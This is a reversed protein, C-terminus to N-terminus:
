TTEKITDPPMSNEESEPEDLKTVFLRLIRRGDTEVVQFQYGSHEVTEEPEPQYGFLGYVYGGITDFVESELTVGLAEAVSYLSARGGVHWGEEAEYIEPEEEDYEDIIEGMVEEVIDEITVLGATGGFEDQVVAMQHRENRMEQLLELLPKDQAVFFASRIFERLPQEHNGSALRSLVDKAHVIGLIQDDTEEYVPLRSYGSEEVVRAADILKSEVPLAVMDIRPTMVSRALTNGFEFVSTIIQREEGEIDGQEEATELIDLIEDEHPNIVAFSPRQGFRSTVLGGLSTTIRNPLWFIARFFRVFRYLGLSTELPQASSYTRPVLEAFLISVSVVVASVLITGLVVVGPESLGLGLQSFLGELGPYWTFAAVASLLVMWWQVTRAGFFCAAVYDKKNAMLDRFIDVRKSDEELYREHGGRILDISTDGAVFIANLTILILFSLILPWTLPAASASFDSVTAIPVSFLGLSLVGAGVAGLRNPKLLPRRRELPDEKM